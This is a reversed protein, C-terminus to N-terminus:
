KKDVINKEVFGFGAKIKKVTEIETNENKRKNQLIKPEVEFSTSQKTKVKEVDEELKDLRNSTMLIIITCVYETLISTVVNFHMNIVSPTTTTKGEGYNKAINLMTQASVLQMHDKCKSKISSRMQDGLMDLNKTSIMPNLKKSVFKDHCITFLASLVKEIFISSHEAATFKVKLSLFNSAKNKLENFDLAKGEDDLFEKGGPIKYIINELSNYFYKQESLSINHVVESDDM